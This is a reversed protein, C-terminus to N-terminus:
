QAPVEFLALQELLSPEAQPELPVPPEYGSPAYFVPEDDDGALVFGYSEAPRPPLPARPGAACAPCLIHGSIPHAPPIQANQTAVWAAALQDALEHDGLDMAARVEDLHAAWEAQERSDTRRREVREIHAEVCCRPYGYYWGMTRRADAWPSGPPDVYEPDFALVQTSSQRVVVLGPPEDPYGTVPSV